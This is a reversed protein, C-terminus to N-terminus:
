LCFCLVPVADTGAVAAVVFQVLYTVINPRVKYIRKTFLTLVPSAAAVAGKLATALAEEWGLPLARPPGASAAITTPLAPAAPDATAVQRVFARAEAVLAPLADTGLWLLSLLFACSSCLLCGVVCFLFRSFYVLRRM